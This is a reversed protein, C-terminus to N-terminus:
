PFPQVDKGGELASSLVRRLIRISPTWRKDGKAAAVTARWDIVPPATVADGDEDVGAEKNIVSFPVELARYATGSSACPWAPTRSAAVSSAIALCSLLPTRPVRRPRYIRAHGTEIVKGFHDVGICFTGTRQSIARLTNMVLQAQATDNDGGATAYQAATILTDFWVLVTPRGFTRQFYQEADAIWYCIIDAANKDTLPPCRPTFWLRYNARSVGTNRPPTCATASEAAAKQHSISSVALASSASAIPTSLGPCLM